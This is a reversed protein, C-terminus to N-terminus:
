LSVFVFKSFSDMRGNTNVNNNIGEKINLDTIEM